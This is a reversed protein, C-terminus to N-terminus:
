ALNRCLTSVPTVSADALAIVYNEILQHLTILDLYLSYNVGFPVQV